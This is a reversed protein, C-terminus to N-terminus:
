ETRGTKESTPTIQDLLPRIADWFQDKLQVSTPIALPKPGAESGRKGESALVGLAVEGDTYYWDGGGNHGDLTAGVGTVEFLQVLRRAKVLDAILADREADIDAAIHHTIQGTRHSLGVSRDFTASGIWLPVGGRGLDASKWFRAHNRHRANGGVAKEFALDQKRGFVFLPSVPAEPYSRNLLVSSAIRLSTRWTVPDAPDWGAALMSRVFDDEDGFFGVNLPDGPIGVSTLTTKPANEMAPHHEYHEWIMPLIVYALTLWTFLVVAFIYICRVLFREVRRPLPRGPPEIVLIDDTNGPNTM